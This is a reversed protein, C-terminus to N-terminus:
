RRTRSCSGHWRTACTRSCKGSARGRNRSCAGCRARLPRCSTRCWPRRGSVGRSWRECRAVSRGALDHPARLLQTAMERQLSRHARADAGAPAHDLWAESFRIETRAADFRLPACFLDRYPRLNKPEAHSFSVESSCWRAGCLARLVNLEFAMVLDYALAAGTTDRQYIAYGLTASKGDVGHTAIAGRTQLPLYLVLSRLASRLTPSRRMLEGLTGLSSLSAQQGVLLGFHDCVTADACRQLLRGAMGYAMRGDAHDLTGPALGLGALLDAAEIGREHLLPAVGLLAAARM